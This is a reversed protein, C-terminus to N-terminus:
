VHNLPTELAGGITINELSSRLPVTVNMSSVLANTRVQRGEREAALAPSSVPPARPDSRFQRSWMGGACR